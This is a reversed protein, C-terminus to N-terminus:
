WKRALVAAKFLQQLSGEQSVLSALSPMTASLLSLATNQKAQRAASGPQWGSVEPGIPSLALPRPSAALGRGHRRPSPACSIEPARQPLAIQTLEVCRARSRERWKLRLHSRRRWAQLPKVRAYRWM